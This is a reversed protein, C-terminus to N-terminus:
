KKTTTRLQEPSFVERLEAVSVIGKAVLELAHDRMPRMGIRIAQQRLEDLTSGRAIASRLRADSRLFEAVAIRGRTGTGACANCGRGQWSVFGAPVSSGFIERMLERDPAQQESCAPCIRRVLRQAVIGLLQAAISNPNMGLDSLRQIADSAENSHLTSLVIHGTQSARLAELATDPDRIEGVFIVDPDERVFSRMATAFTLGLDPVVQTQQIGEIMYEIPDEITIVKRSTDAALLSLGAYITTSKGSGTPGVVLLLGSPSQLLRRFSHALDAPFGLEEITPIATSQPLLRLVVNEGHIVPQTQVRVDCQLEGVTVSFRGGQPLRHEAIDLRAKIKTINILGAIEDEGFRFQQVDRLEGDVRFRIRVGSRQREIHIDSARSGIAELLLVDFTAVHRPEMMLEPSLLDPGAMSKSRLDDPEAWLRVALQLRQFDTPTVVRYDIARAKLAAALEPVDAAPDSTAVVLLHDRLAIPIVSQHELFRAPVARPLRVDIMPLLEEKTSPTRSDSIPRRTWSDDAALAAVTQLQKEIM